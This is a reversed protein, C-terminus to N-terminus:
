SSPTDSGSPQHAQVGSAAIKELVILARGGAGAASPGSAEASGPEFDFRRIALGAAAFRRRLDEADTVAFSRYHRVYARALQEWDIDSGTGTAAIGAAAVRRVFDGGRTADFRTLAPAGPRIRNVTLARGGAALLRQWAALVADREAAAFNGLFSHTVLLDFPRPPRFDRIDTCVTEIEVGARRAYRASLWLPTDCLDLVTFNAPRDGLAARIVALMAGDSSGAVLVRLPTASQPTDRAADRFFDFQDWPTEAPM